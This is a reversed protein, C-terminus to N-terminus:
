FEDSEGINHIPHTSAEIHMEPEEFLEMDFNEDLLPMDQFVFNVASPTHTRQM